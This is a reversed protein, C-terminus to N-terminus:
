RFLARSLQPRAVDVNKPSNYPDDTTGGTSSEDHREEHLQTSFPSRAPPVAQEGGKNDERVRSASHSRQALVMDFLQQATSPLMGESLTSRFPSNGREDRLPTDVGTTQASEGQVEASPSFHSAGNDVFSAPVMGDASEPKQAVEAARNDERSPKSEPHIPSRPPPQLPQKWQQQLQQLALQKQRIAAAADLLESLSLLSLDRGGEPSAGPGAGNRGAADDSCPSCGDVPSPSARRRASPGRSQPLSGTADRSGSSPLRISAERLQQQQPAPLQAVYHDAVEQLGPAALSGYLEFYAREENTTAAQTSLPLTVKQEPSTRSNSRRADSKFPAPSYALPDKNEQEALRKRVAAERLVESRLKKRVGSPGNSHYEVTLLGARAARQRLLRERRAVEKERAAIREMAARERAAAERSQIATVGYAVERQRKELRSKQKELGHELEEKEQRLRTIEKLQDAVLTRDQTLQQRLADTQGRFDRCRENSSLVAAQLEKAELCLAEYLAKDEASLGSPTFFDESSHELSARSDNGDEAHARDAEYASHVSSSAASHVSSTRTTAPTASSPRSPRLAALAAQFRGPRRGSDEATAADHDASGGESLQNPASASQHTDHVVVRSRLEPAVVNAVVGLGRPLLVSTRLQPEPHLPPAGMPLLRSSSSSLYTSPTNTLLLQKLSALLLTECNSVSLTADVTKLSPVVQHLLCAYVLTAVWGDSKSCADAMQPAERAVGARVLDELESLQATSQFSDMASASSESLSAPKRVLEAAVTNTAELTSVVMRLLEMLVSPSAALVSRTLPSPHLQLSWRASPRYLGMMAIDQLDDVSTNTVNVLCSSSLTAGNHEEEEDSRLTSLFFSSVSAIGNNFSLDLLSLTESAALTVNREMFAGRSSEFWSQMNDSERISVAFTNHSLHLERLRPFRAATFFLPVSFPCCHRLERIHQETEDVPPADVNSARQVAGKTCACTCELFSHLHNYAVDLVELTAPLALIWSALGVCCRQRGGDSDRVSNNVLHYPTSSRGLQNHTLRLEVLNVFVGGLGNVYHISNHDALLVAVASAVTAEEENTEEASFCLQSIGRDRLDIDM